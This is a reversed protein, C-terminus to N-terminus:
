YGIVREYYYESVMEFRLVAWAIFCDKDCVFHEELEDFQMDSVPRNTGCAVCDETPVEITEDFRSRM